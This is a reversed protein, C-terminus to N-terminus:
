RKGFLRQVQKQTYEKSFGINAHDSKSSTFAFRVLKAGLTKGYSLYIYGNDAELVIDDKPMTSFNDMTINYLSEFDQETDLYFSKWEEIHIYKADKYFFTYNGNESKECYMTAIGGPSINGVELSVPIDVQALQGYFTGCFLLLLIGVFTKM